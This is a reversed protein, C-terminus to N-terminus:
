AWSKLFKQAESLVTEEDDPQFWTEDPLGKFWTLQRKAYHRTRQAIDEVLQVESRQGTLLAVIERYGIARLPKIEPSFGMKLVQNVEEVWGDALMLGVRQNIREYLLSREWQYGVFRVHPASQQFPMRRQFNGLSEGTALVVELARQVRARDNVHLTAAYDPDLRALEAHTGPVGLEKVMSDVHERVKEPVPPIDALGFILAKFYLGTGGCLIPVKGQQVLNEIIETAKEVFRGASFAEDPEVVDILHHPVRARLAPTPKATGIDLHRYIQLSDTNIVEGGLREALAVALDSKGSATPGIVAVM